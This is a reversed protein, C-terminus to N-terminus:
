LTQTKAREWLAELKELLCNAIEQGQQDLHQEIFQFRKSFKTISENLVDEAYYGLFRSVNVTAFFLDGLELKISPENKQAIAQKLEALEEEVKDIIERM